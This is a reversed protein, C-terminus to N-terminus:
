SNDKNAKAEKRCRKKWTRPVYGAVDRRGQFYIQECITEFRELALKYFGGLFPLRRIKSFPFPTVMLFPNSTSFPAVNSILYRQVIQTM